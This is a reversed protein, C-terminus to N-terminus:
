HEESESAEEEQPLGDVWRWKGHYVADLDDKDENPGWFHMLERPQDRVTDLGVMDLGAFNMRLLLVFLQLSENSPRYTGSDNDIVMKFKNTGPMQVFRFTGACRVKEAVCALVAHKSLVDKGLAAGTESFYLGTDILVYTYVRRKGDRVGDELLDMFDKGDDMCGREAHFTHLPSSAGYLADHTARLASRLAAGQVNQAFIRQHVEDTAHENWTNGMIRQMGQVQVHYSKFPEDLDFPDLQDHQVFYGFVNHNEVYYKVNHGELGQASQFAGM